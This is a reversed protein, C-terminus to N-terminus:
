PGECPQMLIDVPAAPEKLSPQTLTWKWAGEQPDPGQKINAPAMPEKDYPGEM